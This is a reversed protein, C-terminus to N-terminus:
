HSPTTTTHRPDDDYGRRRLFTAIWFGLCVSWMGGLFWWAASADGFFGALLLGIAIPALRLSMLAERKM